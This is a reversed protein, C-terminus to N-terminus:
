PPVRNPVRPYQHQTPSHQPMVNGAATRVVQQQEAAVTVQAETRTETCTSIHSTVWQLMALHPVHCAWWAPLASTPISCSKAAHIPPPTVRPRPVPDPRRQATLPHRLM